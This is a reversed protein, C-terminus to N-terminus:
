GTLTEVSLRLARSQQNMNLINLHFLGFDEGRVFILFQVKLNLILCMLSRHAFDRSISIFTIERAKPADDHSPTRKDGARRAM